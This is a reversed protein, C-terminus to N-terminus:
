VLQSERPLLTLVPRHPPLVAKWTSGLEPWERHFLTRVGKGTWGLVASSQSGEQPWRTYELTVLLPVLETKERGLLSSGLTLRPPHHRQM